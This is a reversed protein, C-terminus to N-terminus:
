RAIRKRLSPSAEGPLATTVGRSKARAKGAGRTRAGFRIGLARRQLLDRYETSTAVHFLVEDGLEALLGDLADDRTRLARALVVRVRAPPVGPFFDDIDAMVSGRARRALARKSTGAVGKAPPSEPLPAALLKEADIIGAGYKETDWGAPRRVGKTTLLEKYVAVLNGPGFRRILRRRGHYALWLATIGAATAVAFSTGSGRGLAFPRPADKRTEARWVSEGPATVDVADGSASQGWPRDSCNSAAVAIVRDLKAPYVVWPWVNGAAALVIVDSEVAYRVADELAGSALPGGLSMSIVHCGTDVARHIAKAVNAFNFVVVSRIVRYPILTAMPAAGSVWQDGGTAIGADSMIVSATKTGHSPHPEVLPDVPYAKEDVFDYGSHSRVRQWGGPNNWIEPHLTYGTDPHGVVIGEGFRRGEGHAPLAMAWARKIGARELSWEPHNSGPLHRGGGGSKARAAEKRTLQRRFLEPDPMIGQLTLAPEAAAVDRDRKLRHVTEWASSLSLPRRRRPRVECYASGKGIATVQWSGSLHRRVIKKVRAELARRGAHRGAGHAGVRILFGECVPKLAKSRPMVRPTM